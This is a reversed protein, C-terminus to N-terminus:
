RRSIRKEQNGNGGRNKNMFYLVSAVIVLGIILYTYDNSSTDDESSLEESDETDGYLYTPGTDQQQNNTMFGYQTMKAEWQPQPVFYASVPFCYGQVNVEVGYQTIYFVSPLWGAISPNSVSIMRYSGQNSYHADYWCDQGNYAVEHYAGSNGNLVCLGSYQQNSTYSFEVVLTQGAIKLCGFMAILALLGSRFNVISYDKNTDM